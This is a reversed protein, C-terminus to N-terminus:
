DNLGTLVLVAARPALGLVERLLELGDADPLSLDLLVCHFRPAGNNLLARAEGLSRAVVMGADLDGEDLFEQVLLADGLDDEVLLIELADQGTVPLGSPSRDATRVPVPGKM